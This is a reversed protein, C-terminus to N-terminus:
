KISGRTMRKLTSDKDIFHHKIAAAAHVSALAVLSWALYKHVDGAYDELNDAQVSSPIEFWDFVYLPDGSSTTILYGSTFLVFLICIMLVQAVKSVLREWAQHGAVPTPRPLTYLLLRIVTLCALLIGVSRHWNPATQYWDSYYDLDVMWTGSAFLGIVTLATMWHVIRSSWHFHTPKNSGPIM